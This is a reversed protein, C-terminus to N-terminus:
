YFFHSSYFSVSKLTSVSDGGPIIILADFMTSRMGELHHDAKVGSSKDGGSPYITHRRPAIVLPFAGAAELAKKVTEFVSLDFGDAILIAIKRTAIMPTKPLYEIQSLGPAKKGPNSRGQTNPLPGGVMEAVNKALDLDIDCLRQCM